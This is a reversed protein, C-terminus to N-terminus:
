LIQITANSCFSKSSSNWRIRFHWLNDKSSIINEACLFEWSFWKEVMRNVDHVLVETEKRARAILSATYIVAMRGPLEPKDGSPRDVVVIDWKLDYVEKPLQRLALQCSSSQLPGGPPACNPDERAHKRLKYINRAAASHVVKYVQMSM